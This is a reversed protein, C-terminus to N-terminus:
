HPRRTDMPAPRWEAAARDLLRCLAHFEETSFTVTTRELHLHVCGHACREISWGEGPAAPTDDRRDM